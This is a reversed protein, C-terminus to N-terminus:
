LRLLMQLAASVAQEKIRRRSGQFHFEEAIHGRPSSIYIYVLGQVKDEVIGGAIGTIGMAVVSSLREKVGEAIEMTVQSSVTGFRSITSEKANCLKIKAEPSYTIISGLFIKSSGDINTLTDSLLGGTCSEVVALTWGQQLFKAIVKAALTNLVVM